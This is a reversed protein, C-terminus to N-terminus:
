GWAGENGATLVIIGFGLSHIISFQAIYSYAGGNKGYLEVDVNMSDNQETSNLQPVSTAINGM